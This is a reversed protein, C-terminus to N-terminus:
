SPPVEHIFRAIHEAAWEPAEYHILHGVNDIVELRAQPLSAAFQRQTSLDTIDDKDAVLLLTALTLAEAYESVDHSVSTEFAQLVAKRTGFHSFYRDHQDHIFARLSAQKTKAMTVSMVRVILSNRLLAFGLREPLRAALQYYWIALRTMFARPGELANAAIPNILVVKPPTLGSAIAASVVISGFSHGIVVTHNSRGVQSVFATLWSAYASISAELPFDGTEGFGPLDPIVCKVDTPMFAVIPELGHHDGRFGHVFIVTTEAGEPGYEWYATDVGDVRIRSNRTELADLRLAFPSTVKSM